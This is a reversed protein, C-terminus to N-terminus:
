EVEFLKLVWVKESIKGLDNRLLDVIMVNEARIKKNNKLWDRNKKDEKLSLGRSVTGKMPRTIIRKNEIRFFLEPSFSLIFDRGTNIFAMYPTPQTRRLNLYFDIVDTQLEFKIKFTFNVQYTLGRRIYDKIREIQLYYETLSINTNIDKLAYSLVEREARDVCSQYNYHDILIPRRCLGLWVLPSDAGNRLYALADELFYGFEYFFYGSVWFGNNLSDEIDNFLAQIDQGPRFTITRDFNTFLFSTHNKKDFSATELFVFPSSLQTALIRKIDRESLPILKASM